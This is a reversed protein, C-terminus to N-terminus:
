PPHNPTLLPESLKYRTPPVPPAELKYDRALSLVFKPNLDLNGHRPYKVTASEVHRAPPFQDLSSLRDSEVVM